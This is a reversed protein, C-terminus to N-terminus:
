SQKWTNEVPEKQWLINELSMRTGFKTLNTWM